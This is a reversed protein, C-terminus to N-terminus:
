WTFNLLSRIGSKKRGEIWVDKIRGRSHLSSCKLNWSEVRCVWGYICQPNYAKTARFKTRKDIGHRCRVWSRWLRLTMKIPARWYTGNTSLIIKLM